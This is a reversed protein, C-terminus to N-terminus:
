ALSHLVWDTRAMQTACLVRGGVLFAPETSQAVANPSVAVLAWGAFPWRCPEEGRYFLGYAYRTDPWFAVQVVPCPQEHQEAAADVLLRRIREAAPKNDHDLHAAVAVLEREVYRYRELMVAQQASVNVQRSVSQATSALLHAKVQDDRAINRVDSKLGDVQERYRKVFATFTDVVARVIDAGNAAGEVDHSVARHFEAIEPDLHETTM